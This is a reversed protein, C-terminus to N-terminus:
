KGDKRHSSFEPDSPELSIDKYWFLLMLISIIITVAQLICCLAFWMPLGFLYTYSAPDQKSFFFAIVMTIGIDFLWLLGTAIAEKGLTKFRPDPVFHSSDTIHTNTEMM